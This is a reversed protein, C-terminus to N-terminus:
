GGPVRQAQIPRILPQKVKVNIQFGIKVPSVFTWYILTTLKFKRVPFNFGHWSRYAKHKM